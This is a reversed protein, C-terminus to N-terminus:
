IGSAQRFARVITGLWVGYQEPWFFAYVFVIAGGTFPVISRSIVTQTIKEADAKITAMATAGLLKLGRLRGCGSLVTFPRGSEPIDRRHHRHNAIARPPARGPACGRLITVMNVM